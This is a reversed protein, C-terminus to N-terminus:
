NKFIYIYINNWLSYDADKVSLVQASSIQTSVNLGSSKLKVGQSLMFLWTQHTVSTTRAGSHCLCSSRQFETTPWELQITSSRTGTPLCVTERCVLNVAESACYKLDTETSWVWTCVRAHVPVGRGQSGGAFGKKHHRWLFGRCGIHQPSSLLFASHCAWAVALASGAWVKNTPTPVTPLMWTTGASGFHLSSLKSIPQIQKWDTSYNLFVEWIKSLAVAATLLAM